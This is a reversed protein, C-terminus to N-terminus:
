GARADHEGHVLRAADQFGEVIRVPAVDALDRCRLGVAPIEEEARDAAVPDCAARDVAGGASRAELTLLARKRETGGAYGGVGGQKPVVRHCPIAIPAPNAACARAVARAGRPVGLRAALASYSRTEGRPIARLADWVRRQFRSGSVDLPVGIEATRGAVYRALEEGWRKVKPADAVLAAFPFEREVTERLAQEHEGFRVLCVGRETAAVLISGLVSEVIAYGISRPEM